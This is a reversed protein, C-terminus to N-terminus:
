AVIFKLMAMQTLLDKLFGYAEQDFGDEDNYRVGQCFGQSM